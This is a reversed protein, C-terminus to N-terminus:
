KNWPELLFYKTRTSARQKHRCGKEIYPRLSSHLLDHAHTVELEKTLAAVITKATAQDEESDKGIKIRGLRDMLAETTTTARNSELVSVFEHVATDLSPPIFEPNDANQAKINRVAEAVDLATFHQKQGGKTGLVSFHDMPDYIPPLYATPCHSRKSERGGKKAFEAARNDLAIDQLERRVATSNLGSLGHRRRTSRTSYQPKALSSLNCRSSSNENIKSVVSSIDKVTPRHLLVSQKAAQHLAQPRCRSRPQGLSSVTWPRALTRSDETSGEEEGDKAALRLAQDELIGLAARRRREKLTLRSKTCIEARKRDRQKAKRLGSSGVLYEVLTLSRDSPKLKSRQEEVEERYKRTYQREADKVYELIPRGKRQRSGEDRGCSTSDSRFQDLPIAVEPTQTSEGPVQDTEANAIANIRVGVQERAVQNSERNFEDMAIQMMAQAATPNVELHPHAYDRKLYATWEKRFEALRRHRKFLTWTRILHYSDCTNSPTLDLCTQGKSNEEVLHEDSVHELLFSCIAYADERAGRHLASNGEADRLELAAGYSALARIIGLINALVQKREAHDNDDIRSMPAWVLHVPANGNSDKQNADAGHRLLTNVVLPRHLSCAVHLATQGSTRPDIQNVDVLSRALYSEVRKVNGERIGIFFESTLVQPTAHRAQAERLTRQTQQSYLTQREELNKELAAYAHSRIGYKARRKALEVAVAGKHAADKVLRDSIEAFRLGAQKARYAQGVARDKEARLASGPIPFKNKLRNLHYAGHFDQLGWHYRGERARKEAELAEGYAADVSERWDM